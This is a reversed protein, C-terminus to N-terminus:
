HGYYDDYGYHYYDDYGYNDGHRASDGYGYYDDYGYDNYDDDDDDDEEERCTRTPPPGGMYMYLMVSRPSLQSLIGDELEYQFGNTDFTVNKCCGKWFATKVSSHIELTDIERRWDKSLVRCRLLEPISFYGIIEREMANPIRDSLMVSNSERSKECQNTVEKQFIAAVHMFPIQNSEEQPEETFLRSLMEFPLWSTLILGSARFRTEIDNRNIFSEICPIGVSADHVHNIDTANVKQVKLEPNNEESYASICNNADKVKDGDLFTVIVRGGQALHPLLNHLFIETADPSSWFCHLTSNCFIADVPRALNNHVKSLDFPYSLDGKVLCLTPPSKDKNEHHTIAKLGEDYQTDDKEIAIVSDFNANTWHDLLDCLEGISVDIISRGGFSEYLWGKIESHLKHVHLEIFNRTHAINSIPFSNKDRTASPMNEMVKFNIDALLTPQLYQQLITNAASLSHARMKDYRIRRFGFEVGPSSENMHGLSLIDVEVVRHRCQEVFKAPVWLICQKRQEFDERGHIPYSCSDLCYNTEPKSPTEERAASKSCIEEYQEQVILAGCAKCHIIFNEEHCPCKQNSCATSDKCWHRSELLRETRIRKLDVILNQINDNGAVDNQQTFQAQFGYSNYRGANELQNKDGKPTADAWFTRNILCVFPFQGIALPIEESLLLESDVFSIENDLHLNRIKLPIDEISCLESALGEDKLHVVFCSSEDTEQIPEGLAVNITLNTQQKWKICSPTDALQHIRTFILGDIPYPFHQWSVEWMLDAKHSPAIPKLYLNPISIFRILTKLLNHREIYSLAPQVPTAQIQVKAPYGVDVCQDAIYVDFALILESGSSAKVIVVEIFFTSKMKPGSYTGKISIPPFSERILYFSNDHHFQLLASEGVAKPGVVYDATELYKRNFNDLQVVPKVLEKLMSQMHSDSGVLMYGM